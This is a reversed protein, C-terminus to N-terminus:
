RFVKSAKNDCLMVGSGRCSYSLLKMSSRLEQLAHPLEMNEVCLVTLYSM